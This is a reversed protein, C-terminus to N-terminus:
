IKSDRLSECPIKGQIDELKEREEQFKFKYPENEKICLTAVLQLVVFSGGVLYMTLYEKEEGKRIFGKVLFPGSFTAIGIVVGTIGYMQFGYKFGFSKNFIPPLLTFTGGLCFAVLINVLFYIGGKKGAFYYTGALILELISIILFPIKFGIKDNIPGWMYRCLGNSLGFFSSIYFLLTQPLGKFNGYQRSTNIILYCFVIIFPNFPNFIHRVYGM